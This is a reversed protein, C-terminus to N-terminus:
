SKTEIIAYSKTKKVRFFIWIHFNALVLNRNTCWTIFVLDICMTVWAIRQSSEINPTEMFLPVRLDDMKTPHGVIFWWNQPVGRKPFGWTSLWRISKCLLSGQEWLLSRPWTRSDSQLTKFVHSSFAFGLDVQWWKPYGHKMGAHWRHYTCNLERLSNTMSRPNLLYLTAFSGRWRM